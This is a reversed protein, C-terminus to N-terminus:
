LPLTFTDDVPDAAFNLTWGIHESEIAAPITFEFCGSYAGAPSYAEHVVEIKDPLQGGEERIACDSQCISVRLSNPRAEGVLSYSVVVSSGPSLSKSTIKVRYHSRSARGGFEPQRRLRRNAVSRARRSKPRLLEYAGISFAALGALAFAASFVVALGHLVVMYFRFFSPADSELVTHLESISAGAFGIGIAVFMAGIIMFFFKGFLSGKRMPANRPRFFRFVATCLCLVGIAAFGGFFAGVMIVDFPPPIGNSFRRFGPTSIWCLAPISIALCLLGFILDACWGYSPSNVKECEAENKECYRSAWRM